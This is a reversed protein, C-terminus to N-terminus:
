SNEKKKKRAYLVLSVALVMLFHPVESYRGELALELIRDLAMLTKGEIEPNEEIITSVKTFLRKAERKIESKAKELAQMCKGITRKISGM